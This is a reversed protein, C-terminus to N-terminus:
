IKGRKCKGKEYNKGWIVNATIEGREPPSPPYKGFYLGRYKQRQMNQSPQKPIWTIFETLTFRARQQGQNKKYIYIDYRNKSLSM